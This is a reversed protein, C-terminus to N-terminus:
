TMTAAQGVTLASLSVSITPKPAAATVTITTNTTAGFRLNGEWLMGWDFLYSGSASPAKTNFTFTTSAGPAVTATPMELRATGWITNDVPSSTGLRYGNAKVWTVNGTNKLTISTDYTSGVVM